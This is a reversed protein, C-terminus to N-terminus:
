KFHLRYYTLGLKFNDIVEGQVKYLIQTEKRKWDWEM